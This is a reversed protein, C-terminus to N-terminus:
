IRLLCFREFPPSHSNPFHPNHITGAAYSISAAPSEFRSPSGMAPTQVPREPITKLAASIMLCAEVECTAAVSHADIISVEEIHHSCIALCGLTLRLLCASLVSVVSKELARFPQIM